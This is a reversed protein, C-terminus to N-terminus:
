AEDHEERYSDSEGNQLMRWLMILWYSSVLAIARNHDVGAYAHTHTYTDKNQDTKKTLQRSTITPTEQQWLLMTSNASMHDSYLLM